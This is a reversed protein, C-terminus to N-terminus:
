TLPERSLVKPVREVRHLIGIGKHIHKTYIFLFDLTIEPHANLGVFRGPAVPVGEAWVPPFVKQPSKIATERYSITRRQHETKPTAQYQTTRM